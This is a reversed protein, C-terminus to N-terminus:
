SLPVIFWCCFLSAAYRTDQFGTMSAPCIRESRTGMNTTRDGMGPRPKLERVAQHSAPERKVFRESIGFSNQVLKGRLTAGLRQTRIFIEPRPCVSRRIVDATHMENFRASLWASAVDSTVKQSATAPATPYPHPIETLNATASASGTTKRCEMTVLVTELNYPNTGLFAHHKATKNLFPSLQQSSADHTKPRVTGRWGAGAPWVEVEINPTRARLHAM